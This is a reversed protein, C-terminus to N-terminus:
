PKQALVEELVSYIRKAGDSVSLPELAKEMESLKTDSKILKEFISYLSEADLKSEHLLVAGGVRALESANKTQHDATVNPSPILVSPKKVACLESVTMAGARTVAFDCANLWLPMDEIYEKIIINDYKGLFEKYNKYYYNGAGVVLIVDKQPTIKPILELIVDNIKKAGLSGGFCLIIKANQPLGLKIRASQKDDQLFEKRVPNGTFVGRKPYKLLENASSFAYAYKVAWRSLLKTTLGPIANQEQVIFPIKRKKLALMAAASIYGGGSIGIDPKFEDVAKIIDKYARYDENLVSINKLLNKRDLGKANFLRYEGPANKYLKKDMSGNAGIFLVKNKENQELIYRGTELSPNIHGGTGGASILVRM